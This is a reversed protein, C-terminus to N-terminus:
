GGTQLLMRVEDRDEPWRLRRDDIVIEGRSWVIVRDADRREAEDARPRESVETSGAAVIERLERPPEDNGRILLTKM